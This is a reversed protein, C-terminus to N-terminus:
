NKPFVDSFNPIHKKEEEEENYFHKELITELINHAYFRVWGSINKKIKNFFKTADKRNTFRKVEEFDGYGSTTSIVGQLVTYYYKKMEGYNNITIM